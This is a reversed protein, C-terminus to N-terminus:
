FAPHKIYPKKGSQPPPRLLDMEEVLVSPVVVSSGTWFARSHHVHETKGAAVIDRLSAETVGEPSLGRTPEERGDEVYVRYAALRSDAAGGMGGGFPMGGRRRGGRRRGGMPGRGARASFNRRLIIGYELDMERCMAILAQRLEDRSKPETSKIIVNGPAGAAQATGRGHGNTGTVEETPVRSMLVSKLTGQEVLTVKQPPVGEDDVPYSGLLPQGEWETLTPDDVVMFTKPLVRSGVKGALSGRGGGFFRSGRPDSFLPVRPNSVGRVLLGRFFEAAADGEILVPGTYDEPDPAGARATLDAAFTRIKAAMEEEAPLGKDIPSKFTLTDALGMGDEAQASADVTLTETGRGWRHRSGESSIFYQNTVQAVWSVRSTQILPFERFIASLRRATAESKKSDVSLSLPDSVYRYPKAQMFDDPRDVIDFTKLVAQKDALGEQADKYAQDTELWIAHRIAEYDDDIALPRGVGGSGMRSTFFRRMDGVFNTNDLSYDGVRLDTYLARSRRSRSSTLGGFSAVATASESDRVIYELYYPRQLGEMKLRDMSRAMEDAMAKYLPEDELEEALAAPFPGAAILPLTLLALLGLARASATHGNPTERDRGRM